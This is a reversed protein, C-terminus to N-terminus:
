VSKKEAKLKKMYQAKLDNENKLRKVEDQLYKLYERTLKVGGRVAIDPHSEMEDLWQELSKERISNYESKDTFYM